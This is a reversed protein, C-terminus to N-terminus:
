CPAILLSCPQRLASADNRVKHLLTERSQRRDALISAEETTQNILKQQERFDEELRRTENEIQIQKERLLELNRRDNDIILKQYRMWVLMQNLSSLTLLMEWESQRGRKYISVMRKAILKKLRNEEERAQELRQRTNQIDLIKEQKASELDILLKKRLGIERSVDEIQGMLSQESAKKEKIAKEIREIELRTKELTSQGSVPWPLLACLIVSIFIRNM